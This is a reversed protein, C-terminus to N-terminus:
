PAGGASPEQRGRRRRDILLAAAAVAGGGGGLIGVTADFVHRATRVGDDGLVLARIGPASESVLGIAVLILLYPAWWPQEAGEARRKKGVRYVVYSGVMVMIIAILMGIARGMSESM